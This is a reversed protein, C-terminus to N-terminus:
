ARAVVRAPNGVVTAGDPVDRIVVAGAGVTVGAGIIVGEIISANTGILTAEGVVVNGSLVAGPMVSVFDDVVCDHGVASQYGVYTHRGVTATASVHAGDLVASGVDITASRSVEARPHVLTAPELGLDDPLQGFVRQRVQPWGIALVYHTGLVSTLGALPGLWTVGRDAFRYEPPPDDAIVGVVDCPRGEVRALAEFGGLVDSAHGGGGILVVKM